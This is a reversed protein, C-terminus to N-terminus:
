VNMIMNHLWHFSSFFHNLPETNTYGNATCIKGNNKKPQQQQQNGNSNGVVSAFVRVVPPDVHIPGHNYRVVLVRM